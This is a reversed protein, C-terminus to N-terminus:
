IKMMLISHDEIDFAEIFDTFLLISVQHRSLSDLLIRQVNLLEHECSRGARFGYQMDHLVGNRNLFYLIRKHM